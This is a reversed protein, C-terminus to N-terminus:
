GAFPHFQEITLEEVFADQAAGFTTLTTIWKTPRGQVKLEVPVVVKGRVAIGRAVAERVGPYRLGHELLTRLKHSRGRVRLAERLRHVTHAAVEPWNVIAERLPSPRFVLQALNPTESPKLKALAVLAAFPQNSDVIDYVANLVVAPYPHSSLIHRVAERIAALDASDGAGDGFKPLYGASVLLANRDRLPMSLAEALRLVMAHSPRSRESELFSVHRASVGATTALALQSLGRVERWDRLMDAFMPVELPGLM